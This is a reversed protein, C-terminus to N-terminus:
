AIPRGREAGHEAGGHYAGREGGSEIHQNLRKALSDLTRLVLPEFVSAILASGAKPM